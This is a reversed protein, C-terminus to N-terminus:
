VWGTIMAYILIIHAAVFWAGGAIMLWASM